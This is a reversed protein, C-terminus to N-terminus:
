WYPLGHQHGCLRLGGDGRDASGGAGDPAPQLRLSSSRFFGLFALIQKRKGTVISAASNSIRDPESDSKEACVLGSGYASGSKKKYFISVSCLNLRVYPPVTTQTFNKWGDVSYFTVALKNLM